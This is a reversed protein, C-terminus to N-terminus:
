ETIIIPLQLLAFSNSELEYTLIAEIGTRKITPFPNTFLCEVVGKCFCDSGCLVGGVPVPSQEIAKTIASLIKETTM